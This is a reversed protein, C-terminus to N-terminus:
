LENEESEGLVSLIHKHRYETLTDCLCDVLLNGFVPDGDPECFLSNVDVSIQFGDVDIIGTDDQM